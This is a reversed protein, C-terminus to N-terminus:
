DGSMYPNVGDWGFFLIYFLQSIIDVEYNTAISSWMAAGPAAVDVWTGFNSFFARANTDDSAGVAIVHNCAAPYVAADTSDNGAAAVCLVDAATAADVLAQFYEPVGPGSAGFSMNLVAVRRQTAYQFAATVATLPLQGASDSIKLPLISCNWGAGAIG